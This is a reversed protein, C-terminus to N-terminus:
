NELACQMAWIALPRMYGLSRYNGNKNWAEPTAFWYGFEMWGADHIGQATMFAMQTLELREAELRQRKKDDDDNASTDSRGSRGNDNDAVSDTESMNADLLEIGIGVSASSSSSGNSIEMGGATARAELLMAAAVAYTTGTWVERSQLCTDDISGNPRMGNVAGLLKGDGFAMVNQKFITRFASLAMKRPVVPPLRCARSYWQGALQDAMISDHHTSQSNDLNLYKGNWLAKIYVGRAQDACARFRAARPVDEEIEAIAGAAECAAIWLGGCYAHIGKATWIDYTQDPFGGNEIMGDGDTDYKMTHDMVAIVAPYMDSLFNKAAVADRATMVNSSSASASASATASANTNANSVPRKLGDLLYRYDRYISLVFKPGLDKWESVDQFNYINPSYWPCETPSGMDHAVAHKV